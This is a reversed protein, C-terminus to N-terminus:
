LPKPAKKWNRVYGNNDFSLGISELRMRWVGAKCPQFRTLLHVVHGPTTTPSFRELIARALQTPNSWRGANITNGKLNKRIASESRGVYKSGDRKKLVIGHQAACKKIRGLIYDLKTEFFETRSGDGTYLEGGIYEKSFKELDKYRNTEFLAVVKFNEPASTNLTGLRRPLNATFGVKFVPKGSRSIVCRNSLVYVYGKTAM